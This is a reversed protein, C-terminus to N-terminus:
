EVGGVITFTLKAPWCPAADFAATGAPAGATM